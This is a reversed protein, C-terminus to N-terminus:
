KEEGAHGGGVVYMCTPEVWLVLVAFFAVIEKVDDSNAGGGGGWIYTASLSYRGEM